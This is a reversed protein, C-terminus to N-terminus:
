RRRVTGCNFFMSYVLALDFIFKCDRTMRFKDSCAYCFCHQYTVCRFLEPPEEPQTVTQGTM